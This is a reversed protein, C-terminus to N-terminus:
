LAAKSLGFPYRRAHLLIDADSGLHDVDIRLDIYNHGDVDTQETLIDVTMTMSKGNVTANTSFQQGQIDALSDYNPNWFTEMAYNAAVIAERKNQTRQIIGGTQHLVAAGGVVLFVLVLISVMIEVLSFGSKCKNKMTNGGVDGLM